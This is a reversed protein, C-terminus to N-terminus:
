LDKIFKKVRKSLPMKNKDYFVSRKWIYMCGRVNYCLHFLKNSWYEKLKLAPFLSTKENGSQLETLLEDLKIVKQKDFWAFESYAFKIYLNYDDFSFDKKLTKLQNIIIKTTNKNQINKYVYSVSKENIRVKYLVQPINALNTYLTIRTWLEYDEAHLFEKNFYLKNKKLVDTRIMSTGHSLHIQYLQKIRIDIGESLYKVTQIIGKDSFTEFWSGCIGVESNVEMFAFQCELRNPLSIDDADMRAIYKGSAIDIGRNLTNILGINKENEFYRIRSDLYSLIIDKSSDSSGDNIIIFEFNRFTQTLISEIAENLYKEANFVPMLVSIPAKM